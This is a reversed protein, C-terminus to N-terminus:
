EASSEGNQAPGPEYWQPRRYREPLALLVLATIGTVLIFEIRVNSFYVAYSANLDPVAINFLTAALPVEILYYIGMILVWGALM